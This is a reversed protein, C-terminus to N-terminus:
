LKSIVFLAAILVVGGIVWPLVSQARTTTAASGLVLQATNM